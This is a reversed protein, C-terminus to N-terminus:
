PIPPINQIQFYALEQDRDDRWSDDIGGCGSAEILVLGARGAKSFLLRGRCNLTDGNFMRDGDPDYEGTMVGDAEITWETAAAWLDTTAPCEINMDPEDAFIANSGCMASTVDDDSYIAEALAQRAYSDYFDPIGVYVGLPGAGIKLATICATIIAAPPLGMAVLGLEELRAEGIPQTLVYLEADDLHYEFKPDAEEVTLAAYTRYGLLAAIIELLHSLKVALGQTSLAQSAAYAASRAYDSM